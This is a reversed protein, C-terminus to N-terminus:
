PEVLKDPLKKGLNGKPKVSQHVTKGFYLAKLQLNLQFGLGTVVGKIKSALM